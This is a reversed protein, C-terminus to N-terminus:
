PGRREGTEGEIRGDLGSAFALLGAEALRGSASELQRASSAM